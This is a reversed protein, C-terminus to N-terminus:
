AVDVLEGAIREHLRPKLGKRTILDVPRQLISELYEWLGMHGDFTTKGEFEVILDVDSDARADDRAVSGFLQLSRVGYGRIAPWHSRLTALVDNCRPATM